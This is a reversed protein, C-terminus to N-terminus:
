CYIPLVSDYQTQQHQALWSPTEDQASNINKIQEEIFKCCVNYWRNLYDSKNTFAPGEVEIILCTVLENLALGSEELWCEYYKQSTHRDIYLFVNVPPTSLETKAILEFFEAKAVLVQSGKWEASNRVLDLRWGIVNETNM